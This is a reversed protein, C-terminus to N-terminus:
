WGSQYASGTLRKSEVYLICYLFRDDSNWRLENPAFPFVDLSSSGYDRGVYREFEVLCILASLEDIDDDGPFAGELFEYVYFTENDHPSDCDVPAFPDAVDEDPDDFCDGVSLVAGYAGDDGNGGPPPAATHGPVPTLVKTTNLTTELFEDNRLVEIQIPDTLERSRLVDCYDSMTGDDAPIIGEIETVIDGGRIGGLDAPSGSAVSHVWIGSEGDELIATGNIGLSTVNTGTALVGVVREAETKGIAFSQGEDNGAYNIGVIHGNATVLPGGSNGPLIDATHEIVSDVSAWSSEGDARAKSVIGDLLTYEPDDLPHGAAYVVLGTDITDTYWTLYPFDEGDVRIVALDSCESVGLIRANRPTAEGDTYISLFAAGTVVHNNTIALGDPSIFFGSGSMGENYATGTGEYDFSGKAEIRFVAGRVAELRDVAGSVPETTTTVNSAPSGTTTSRTTDTAAGSCATAVLASVALATIVNRGMMSNDTWDTSGKLRTMECMVYRFACPGAM